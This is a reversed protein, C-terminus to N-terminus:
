EGSFDGLYNRVERHVGPEQLVILIRSNKEVLVRGDGGRSFWSNPAIQERITAILKEDDVKINPPIAYIRLVMASQAISESTVIITHDDMFQAVLGYRTLTDDMLDRLSRQKLEVEILQESSIGSRLLALEDLVINQDIRSSLQRLFATLPMPQRTGYLIIQALPDETTQNHTSTAPNKASM